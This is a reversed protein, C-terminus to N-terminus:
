VLGERTRWVQEKLLVARLETLGDPPDDLACLIRERDAITLALILVETELAKELVSAAPEDVLDALERVLEASVHIGALMM